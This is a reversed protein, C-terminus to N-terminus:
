TPGAARSSRDEQVRGPCRGVEGRETIRAFRADVEAKRAPHTFLFTSTNPLHRERTRHPHALPASRRREHFSVAASVTQRGQTDVYESILWPEVHGNIDVRARLKGGRQAMFTGHRIPVSPLRVAPAPSCCSQSPVHSGM